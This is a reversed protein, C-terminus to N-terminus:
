WHNLYHFLQYLQHRSEWGAAKPLKEFYSSFFEKSFGGFMAAIALDYEHHGYFSAPDFVVPISAGHEQVTAANGGWLDGHLLSPTVDSAGEFLRPVERQLQPWLEVAEGVSRGSSETQLKKIQFDLKRAFFVQWDDCWENDQPIFGCCTPVSFGFRKEYVIDTGDGAEESSASMRSAGTPDRLKLNHLHLDALQSGLQAGAAGGKMDLAEM